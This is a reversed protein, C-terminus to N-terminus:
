GLLAAVRMGVEFYYFSKQNLRMVRAIPDVSPNLVRLGQIDANFMPPLEIQVFRRLYLGEGIWLPLSLKCAAPLELVGKLVSNIPRPIRVHSVSWENGWEGGSPGNDAVG